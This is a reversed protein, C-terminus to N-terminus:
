EASEVFNNNTDEQTSVEGVLNRYFNIESIRMYPALWFMGIGLTFVSLIAWGIFSLDLCFLSWVKGNMLAASKEVAEKGKMESNDIQVFIALRYSYQKVIVYLIAAINLITGIIILVINESNMGYISPILSVFFLIVPIILKIITHLSISWAKAFNSFGNSFFDFYGVESNDNLKFMSIVLGYSLPVSIITSVIAISMKEFAYSIVYTIIGFVFSILAAKGWKGALRERAKARVDSATM